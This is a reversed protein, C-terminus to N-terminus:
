GTNKVATPFVRHRVFQTLPQDGHPTTQLLHEREANEHGPTQLEIKAAKVPVTLSLPTHM